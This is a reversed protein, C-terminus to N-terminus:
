RSDGDIRRRATPRRRTVLKLVAAAAPSPVPAAHAKMVVLDLRLRALVNSKGSANPGVVVTADTLNLSFGPDPGIGAGFSLLGTAAITTLRM